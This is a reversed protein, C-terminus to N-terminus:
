EPSISHLLVDRYAFRDEIHWQPSESFAPDLEISGGAADRLEKEVIDLAGAQDKALVMITQLM